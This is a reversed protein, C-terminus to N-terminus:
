HQGLAEEVAKALQDPCSTSKRGCKTGKLTSVLERADMGEVLKSIGNLNGNCGDEFSVQRIKGDKIDFNIKSSCVGKTKYAFM